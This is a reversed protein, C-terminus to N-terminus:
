QMKTLQDVAGAVKTVTKSMVQVRMQYDQLALMARILQMSDGTRTASELMKSIHQQDKQFETGLNVLQGAPGDGVTESKGPAPVQPMYAAAHRDVAAGFLEGDETGVTTTQLKVNGPMTLDTTGGVTKDLANWM